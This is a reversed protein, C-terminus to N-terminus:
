DSSVSYITTYRYDRAGDIAGIGLGLGGAGLGAVPALWRLGFWQATGIAWGILFGIKAKRWVRRRGLDVRRVDARLIQVTQDDAHVVIEDDMVKEVDGEIMQPYIRIRAGQELALVPSWDNQAPVGAQVTLATLLWVLPLALPNHSRSRGSIVLM